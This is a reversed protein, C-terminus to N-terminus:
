GQRQSHWRVPVHVHPYISKRPLPFPPIKGGQSSDEGSKITRNLFTRSSYINALQICVAPVIFKISGSVVNFSM